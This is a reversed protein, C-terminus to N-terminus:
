ILSREIFVMIFLGIIGGMLALIAGYQLLDLLRGQRRVAMAIGFVAGGLLGVLPIIM